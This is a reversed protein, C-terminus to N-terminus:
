RRQLGPRPRDHRGGRGPQVARPWDLGAECQVLARRSSRAAVYYALGVLALQGLWLIDDNTHIPRLRGFTLWAGPWFDPAGFKYAM